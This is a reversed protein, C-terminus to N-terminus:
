FIVDAIQNKISVMGAISPHGEQKNINQLQINMVNYHACIEAQSNTIEAKLGDNVVNIIRANPHNTKLYDLMYAFAPRFSKKDNDTWDSYKYNGIPSGAWADNTGGMIIITNPSGLNTMRTIFSSWSSNDGGYGTNCITAGSYSNNVEMTGDYEQLLQHWWTQEVQVVDNKNDWHPYWPDNGPVIHNAFTSYSDGLISVKGLVVPTTPLNAEVTIDKKHSDSTGASNKVLLTVSYTGASTYTYSPNQGVSTGENDGFDWAYSTANESENTFKIKLNNSADVHYLFGAKPNPIVTENEKAESGCSSGLFILMGFTFCLHKILLVTKM